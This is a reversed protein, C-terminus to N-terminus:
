WSHFSSGSLVQGRNPWRNRYEWQLAYMSHYEDYLANLASM